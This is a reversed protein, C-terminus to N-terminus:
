LYQNCLLIGSSYNWCCQYISSPFLLGGSKDTPTTQVDHSLLPQEEESAIDRDEGNDQQTM